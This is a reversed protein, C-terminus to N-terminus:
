AAIFRRIQTLVSTNTLFGLRTGCLVNNSTAGMLRTSASSCRLVPGARQMPTMAPEGAARSDAWRM